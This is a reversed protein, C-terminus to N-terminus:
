NWFRLCCLITNIYSGVSAAGDLPTDQFGEAAPLGARGLFDSFIAECVVKLSAIAAIKEFIDPPTEM